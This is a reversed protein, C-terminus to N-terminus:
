GMGKMFCVISIMLMLCCSGTMGLLIGMGAAFDQVLNTLKKTGFASCVAATAKLLLYQVGIQLFPGIVIALVAMAGYIGVGNKVVGAGVLVAESADSLIGGVVPVMGSLTLKTAKLAAADATGSIVGTISMYGTFVYLIIKLGWTMLWKTLNRIQQLPDEGVACNAVSLCLFIYILPTLLGSIGSCLIADFLATGTYLAASTTVGGQAAVSAAMVPILLKGYDSLSTVTKTGLRILSNSPNLLLLGVCVTGATEVLNKSAGPMASLVSVLLSIGILGCCVGSADALSPQLYTVAKKLIYLLGEGFTDPEEPMLELVEAPAEPATLETASVPMAMALILVFVFVAKM